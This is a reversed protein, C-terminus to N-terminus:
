RAGGVALVTEALLILSTNVTTAVEAPALSMPLDVTSVQAPFTEKQNLVTAVHIANKSSNLRLLRHLLLVLVARRVILSCSSPPSLELTFSAAASTSVISTSLNVPVNSAAVSCIDAVSLRGASIKVRTSAM